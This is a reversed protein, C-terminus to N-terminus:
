NTEPYLAGPKDAVQNDALVQGSMILGQAQSRTECLRREVLLKDLREKRPKGAVM